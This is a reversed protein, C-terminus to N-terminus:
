LWLPPFLLVSVEVEQISHANIADSLDEELDIM